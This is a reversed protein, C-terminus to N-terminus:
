RWCGITTLRSSGSPQPMPPPRWRSPKAIAWSGGPKSPVWPMASPSRASSGTCPRYQAGARPPRRSRSRGPQHRHRTRPLCDGASPLRPRGSTRGRGPPRGPGPRGPRGGGSGGHRLGPRRPLPRRARRGARRQRAIRLLAGRRPPPDQPGEEGAHQLRGRPHAGPRLRVPRAGSLPPRDGPRAARSPRAGPATARPRGRGSGSVAALAAPSFSQGLVAADAVLARDAADLEDLRATILATLTEPVAVDALDGVPRYADRTSCSGARPSSCACPRSPTSRCATPARSSRRAPARRCAPCSARWCTM